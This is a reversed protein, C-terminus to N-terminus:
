LATQDGTAATSDSSTSSGDTAKDKDCGDRPNDAGPTADAGPSPPAATTPPTTTAPAEQAWALGANGLGLAALAGVAAGAMRLNIKM